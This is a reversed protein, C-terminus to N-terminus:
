LKAIAMHVAEQLAFFYQLAQLQVPYLSEIKHAKEIAVQTKTSMKGGDLMHVPPAKLLVERLLKNSCMVLQLVVLSKM